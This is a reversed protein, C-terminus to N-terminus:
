GEAELKLLLKLCDAMVDADRSLQGIAFEAAASRQKKAEEKLFAARQGYERAKRLARDAEDWTRCVPKRDAM